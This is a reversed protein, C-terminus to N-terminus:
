GANDVENIHEGGDVEEIEEDGYLAGSQNASPDRFFNWSIV